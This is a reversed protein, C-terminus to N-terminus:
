ISEEDNITFIKPKEGESSMGDEDGSIFEEQEEESDMPNWTKQSNWEKTL